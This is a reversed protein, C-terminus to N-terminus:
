DMADEFSITSFFDNVIKVIITAIAKEYESKADDWVAKWNDNLAKNVQDGLKKDGDFLNEFNFELKEPDLTTTEKVFKVATQGDARKTEEWFTHLSLKVNEAFNILLSIVVISLFYQNLARLAQKNKLYIQKNLTTLKYLRLNKDKLLSILFFNNKGLDITSHGKGKISLVLVKGDLEYDCKLKIDPITADLILERKDFKM